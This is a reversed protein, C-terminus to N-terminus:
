YRAYPMESSLEPKLQTTGAPPANGVSTGTDETNSDGFLHVFIGLYMAPSLSPETTM